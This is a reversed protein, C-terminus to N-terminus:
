VEVGKLLKTVERSIVAKPYRDYEKEDYFAMFVTKFTSLNSEKLDKVRFSEFPEPCSCGSDTQWLLMGDENRTYVRLLDFSFYGPALRIEGLLTMYDEIAKIYEDEQWSSLSYEMVEENYPWPKHVERCVHCYGMPCNFESMM